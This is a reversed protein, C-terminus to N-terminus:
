GVSNWAMTVANFIALLNQDKLLVSSHSMYSKLFKMEFSYTNIKYYSPNGPLSIKNNTNELLIRLSKSEIQVIHM